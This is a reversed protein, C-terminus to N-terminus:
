PRRHYIQVNSDDFAKAPEFSLRTLHHRVTALGDAGYVKPHFELVISRIGELAEISLLQCEGGEIDMVLVDPHHDAILRSLPIGKVTAMRVYAPDPALSSSWFNERCYFSVLSEQDSPLAVGHIVNADSVANLRHVRQIYPILDPNAEVCIIPGAAGRKRLLCSLFGLRAGLELVVDGPRVVSLTARVEKAEYKRGALRRRM